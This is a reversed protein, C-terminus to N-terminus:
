GKFTKFAELIFYCFVAAIIAWFRNDSLTKLTSLTYAIYKM